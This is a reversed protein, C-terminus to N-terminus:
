PDSPATPAILEKPLLITNKLIDFALEGLGTLGSTVSKGPLMMVKPDSLPGKAEFLATLIGRRQDGGAFIKNLVPIKNLINEYSGLPSVAMAIDLDDSPIDYRGAGAIKMVPSNLVFEDITMIGREIVLTATISDFALGKSSLDPVQGSLLQPLNLLNIMKSLATFKRIRGDSLTLQFRGDLTAVVRDEGNGNGSLQGKIDSRGFMLHEDGGLLAVIDQAPIAKFQAYGEMQIPEDKPVQIAAHAQVSGDGSQAKLVELTVVGDMGTVALHMDQWEVGHYQGIGVHIDSQLITTRSLSTVFERLPSPKDRPIVLEFDFQPADIFVRISPFAHFGTIAGKVHVPSGEFTAALSGIEVRGDEGSSFRLATSIEEITLSKGVTTEPIRVRGHLLSVKGDIGLAKQKGGVGTFKLQAELLGAEPHVGRITVHPAQEHFAELRVLNSEVSISYQRPTTLAVHGSAILLLQAIDFRAQQIQIETQGQLVADIDASAAVGAPKRTGLEDYYGTKKLNFTASIASEEADREVKLNLLTTGRILTGPSLPSFGSKSLFLHALERADAHSQIVITSADGAFQANLQVRSRGARGKVGALDLGDPSFTLAGFLKSVPLGLWTSQFGMGRSRYVGEFEVEDRQLSGMMELTLHGGGTPIEYAWMNESRNQPPPDAEFFDLFESTPVKFIVTSDIDAEDYIATLVGIGSMIDSDGYRGSLSQLELMDDRLMLAANIEEFLVRKKGFRGRMGELEFEATVTIDSPSVMGLVGSVSAQIIHASGSADSETVVDYFRTQDFHPSFISFAAKIDFPSTSVEAEFTWPEDHKQQLVTSGVLESNELQININEMRVLRSTSNLVLTVEGDLDALGYLTEDGNIGLYPHLRALNLSSIRTTGAFTYEPQSTEFTSPQITQTSLTGTLHIKAHGNGYPLIGGMLLELPAGPAPTMVAMNVQEIQLDPTNDSQGRWMINIKGDRVVLENVSSSLGLINLVPPGGKGERSFLNSFQIIETPGGLVNLQPRNLELRKVVMEGRLLPLLRLDISIHDASFVPIGSEHDLLSIQELDVQVGPFVNLSVDSVEVHAGLQSEIQGLAYAKYSDLDILGRFVLLLLLVLGALLALGVGSLLLWHRGADKSM